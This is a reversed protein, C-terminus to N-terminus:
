DDLKVKHIYKLKIVYRLDLILQNRGARNKAM